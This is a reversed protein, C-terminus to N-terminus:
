DSKNNFIHNNLYNILFIQLHRMRDKEGDKDFAMIIEIKTVVVIGGM